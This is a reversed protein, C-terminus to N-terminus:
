RTTEPLAKDNVKEFKAMQDRINARYPPPLATYWGIFLEARELFSMIQIASVGDNQLKRAAELVKAATNGIKLILTTARFRDMEEAKEDRALKKAQRLAYRLEAVIESGVEALGPKTEADEDEAILNPKIPLCLACGENSSLPFRCTRCALM